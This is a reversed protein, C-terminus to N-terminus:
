KKGEFLDIKGKGKLTVIAKKKPKIVRTRGMYDRKKQGAVNITRVSDVEVDFTEKISKKVGYKTANKDIWFTYKGKKADELSKETLVPNLRM